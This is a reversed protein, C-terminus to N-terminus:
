ISQRQIFDDAQKLLKKTDPYTALEMAENFVLWKSDQHENSIIIKEENTKALFFYVFKQRKEGNQGVYYEITEKFGDIFELQTIGSEERIERRATDIEEEGEEIHGKPFDWHGDEKKDSSNRSFGGRLNHKLLLYVRGKPTDRAIIAGASREVKMFDM